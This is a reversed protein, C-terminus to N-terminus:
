RRHNPSDDWILHSILWKGDPQKKLIAMYNGATSWDATTEKDEIRWSVEGRGRVYAVLDDGGVEDVTRVFKLITTKPPAAPFWFDNIAKMGVVPQVGHHPMLVADQTFCGRVGDGDNSLWSTRYHELVKRIASADRPPLSRTGAWTTITAFLLVTFATWRKM